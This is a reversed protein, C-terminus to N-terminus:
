VATVEATTSRTVKLLTVIIFTVVVILVAIGLMAFITNGYTNLFDSAYAPLSQMGTANEFQTRVMGEVGAFITIILGGLILVIFMSIVAMIEKSTIEM